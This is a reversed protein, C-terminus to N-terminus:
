AKDAEVNQMVGDFSRDESQFHCFLQSAV